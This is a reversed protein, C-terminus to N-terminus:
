LVSTGNNRLWGTASRTRLRDLMQDAQKNENANRLKRVNEISDNKEDYLAQIRDAKTPSKKRKIWWLLLGLLPGLIALFATITAM